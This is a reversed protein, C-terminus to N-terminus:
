LLSIYISPIPNSLWIGDTEKYFNIGDKSAEYSMIALVIVEGKRRGGIKKAEEISDSLHVYNRKMPILGKQLIKEWKDKITGHYLKVPPISNKKFIKNDTSHGYCARIKSNFIEHRKKKSKEVIIFITQIDILIGKKNLGNVLDDLFVWGQEDLELNYVEPEHRLAHSIIKSIKELDPRNIQM